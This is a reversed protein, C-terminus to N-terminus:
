SRNYDRRRWTEVHQNAAQPYRPSQPDLQCVFDFAVSRFPISQAFLRRTACCLPWILADNAVVVICYLVCIFLNNVVMSRVASGGDVDGGGGGGGGSCRGDGGCRDGVWVILYQRTLHCCM